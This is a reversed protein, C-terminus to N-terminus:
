LIYSLTQLEKEVCSSTGGLSLAARRYSYSRVNRTQRHKPETHAAGLTDGHLPCTVPTVPRHAPSSSGGASDVSGRPFMKQSLDTFRVSRTCFALNLLAAPIVPGTLCPAVSLSM